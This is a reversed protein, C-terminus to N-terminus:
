YHKGSRRIHTAPRADHLVKGGVVAGLVLVHDGAAFRHLVRCDLFAHAALLLPAAEANRHVELGQFAPEGQAFGNGFHALLQKQGEALVNVGFAAGITLWELVWRDKDFAASILPPDFSCQQVWSALMGSDQRDHRATIVFLGSPVRGLAALADDHAARDAM